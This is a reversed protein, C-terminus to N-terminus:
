IDGKRCTADRDKTMVQKYSFKNGQKMTELCSKLNDLTVETVLADCDPLPVVLHLSAHISVSSIEAMMQKRLQAKLCNQFKRERLSKLFEMMDKKGAFEVEMM